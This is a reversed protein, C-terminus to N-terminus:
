APRQVDHFGRQELEAWEAETAEVIELEDASYSEVHLPEPSDIKLVMKKGDPDDSLEDPFEVFAATYIDKGLLNQCRVRM